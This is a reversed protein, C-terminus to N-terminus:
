QFFVTRLSEKTNPVKLDDNPLLKANITKRFHTKILNLAWTSDEKCPNEYYKLVIQKTITKTQKNKLYLNIKIIYMTIKRFNYALWVATLIINPM